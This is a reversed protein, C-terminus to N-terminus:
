NAPLEVAGGVAAAAVDDGCGICVGEVAGGAAGAGDVVGV